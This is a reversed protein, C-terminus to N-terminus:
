RRSSGGTTAWCGCGDARTVPAGASGERRRERGAARVSCGASTDPKKAIEVLRLRGGCKECKLVDAAFVRKLLYSWDREVRDGRLARDARAAATGHATTPTRERAM